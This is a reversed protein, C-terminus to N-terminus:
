GKLFSFQRKETNQNFRAHYILMVQADLATALSVHKFGIHQISIQGM